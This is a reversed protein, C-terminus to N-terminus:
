VGVKDIYRQVLSLHVAHVRVRGARLDGTAEPGSEQALAKVAQAVTRESANRPVRELWSAFFKSANIYAYEGRRWVGLPSMTPGLDPIQTNELLHWLRLIIDGRLGNSIIALQGFEEDAAPSWFRGVPEPDQSHLWLIHKAFELGEIMERLDARTQLGAVDSWKGATPIHMLRENFAKISATNMTNTITGRLVDAIDNCAVAYRMCGAISGVDVFKLEIRQRNDSVAERLYSALSHGAEADNKDDDNVALFSNTLAANFQKGLVDRMKAAGERWLSACGRLILTKGSGPDGSLLLARLPYETRLLGGLWHVLHPYYQGALVRCFEDVRQSYVPGIDTRVNAVGVHMTATEGDYTTKVNIQREVRAARAGYAKMLAPLGDLELGYLANLDQLVDLTFDDRTWPGCWSPGVRLFLQKAKHVVLPHEAECPVDTDEDVWRWVRRRREAEFEQLERDADDKQKAIRQWKERTKDEGETWGMSDISRAFLALIGTESAHPYVKALAVLLRFTAVDREGEAAYPEGALVNKLARGTGRTTKNNSWRGSLNEFDIRTPEVRIQALKRRWGEYPAPAAWQGTALAEYLAPSPAYICGTRHLSYPAIAVGGTSRIDVGPCIGVRTGSAGAYYLHVGGGERGTSVTYPTPGCIRWVHDLMAPDDVDVVTTSASGPLLAANHSPYRNCWREWEDDSVRPSDPSHYQKYKVDPNKDGPASPCVNFGLRRWPEARDRFSVM